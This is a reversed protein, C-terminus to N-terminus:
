FDNDRLNLSQAKGQPGYELVSILSKGIINHCKSIPWSQSTFLKEM